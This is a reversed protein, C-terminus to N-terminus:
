RTLVTKQIRNRRSIIYEELKLFPKVTSLPDLTIYVQHFYNDQLKELRFNIEKMVPGKQKIEM